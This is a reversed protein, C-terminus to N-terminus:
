IIYQDVIAGNVSSSLSLVDEVGFASAFEEYNLNVGPDGTTKNGGLNFNFTDANSITIDKGDNLTLKTANKTFLTKSIFTNDPIQITNEGNTDVISIKSNKPILNSIFYTDDGVLGRVTEGSGTLIILDNQGSYNLTGSFSSSNFEELIPDSSDVSSSFKYSTEDSTSSLSSTPIIEVDYTNATWNGSFSEDVDKITLKGSQGSNDPAFLIQTGSIGDSTVEVNNISDFEQTTLESTGTKNVLVLKDNTKNFGEIEFTYAGEDSTGDNNIEYRFEDAASTATFSTDKNGSINIINFSSSSASDSKTYFVGEKTQTQSSLETGFLKVFDSYSFNEGKDGAVSNGSVNFTFKDAGNITIEADNSLTLRTASSAFVAKEILTNDPIQIINDGSTDVISISSNATILDSIFYTDDGALGRITGAQGTLLIIESNSSHNLTGSSTSTSSFEDLVPGSENKSSSLSYTLPEPNTDIDPDADDDKMKISFTKSISASEWDENINVIGDVLRATVTINTIEEDGSSGSSFKLIGNNISIQDSLKSNDSELSYSVTTLSPHNYTWFINDLNIEKSSSDSLIQDSIDDRTGFGFYGNYPYDEINWTGSKTQIKEFNIASTYLSQDDGLRVHLYENKEIGTRFGKFDISRSVFFEESDIVLTDTGAGGNIKDRGTTVNFIDNGSTLTLTDDGSTGSIDDDKMTVTFTQEDWRFTEDSPGNDGPTYTQTARVTVETTKLSGQMGANVTLLNGSLSLQDSLDSNSSSFTYSLSAGENLTWFYDSLDITENSNDSLTKNPITIDSVDFTGNDDFSSINSTTGEFQIKEFNWAVTYPELYDDGEKLRIYLFNEGKIGTYYSAGNVDTARIVRAGDPVIITDTGNGGNIKDNGRSVQWTDNGSTLTRKDDGSTGSASSNSSDNDKFTVSYTLKKPTQGALIQGNSAVDSATITVNVTRTTGSGNNVTITDGSISFQDSYASNSLEFEYKTSHGYNVSAVYDGLDISYKENDSSYNKDSISYGSRILVNKYTYNDFDEIRILNNTGFYQLLEISNAVLIATSSSNEIAIFEEGISFYDGWPDVSRFVKHSSFFHITDTGSGGYAVNIGGFTSSASSTYFVDNGSGGFALDNGAGIWIYDSGGYGYIVDDGIGTDFLGDYSNGYIVDDGSVLYRHNSKAYIIDDVMSEVSYGYVDLDTIEYLTEYQGTFPNYELEAYYIPQYKGTWEIEYLIGARKIDGDAFYEVRIGYLSSGFSEFDYDFVYANDYGFDIQTLNIVGAREYIIVEM